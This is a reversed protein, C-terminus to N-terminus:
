ARHFRLTIGMKKAAALILKKPILPYLIRHLGSALDAKAKQLTSYEANSEYLKTSLFAKMEPQLWETGDACVRNRLSACSPTNLTPIDGLSLYAQGNYCYPLTCNHGIAEFHIPTDTYINGLVKGCYCQTLIGTNLNLYLSWDGAYCFDEVHELTTLKYLFLESHFTGWIKKYEEFSYDSLRELGKTRNDRAVTVHCIANLHEECVSKVKDIHPILEDSPTLEVTFSVGATKMRLVNSFFREMWGLRQLELYHFSFKIMLRKLLNKPWEAIENFRETLTGNTVVMVYHGAELLCKVVLLVEESLLTEGGACLNLLCVGGLREVSLAQAIEKPSHEFKTLNQGFGSAQAIYCYHCHLNCIDTDINCDIFRKIKDM